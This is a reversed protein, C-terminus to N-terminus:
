WVLLLQFDNGFCGPSLVKCSVALIHCRGNEAGNGAAGACGVIQCLNQSRLYIFDVFVQFCQFAFLFDPMHPFFPPHKIKPMTIIAM